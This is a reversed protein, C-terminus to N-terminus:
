SQRSQYQELNEIFRYSKQKKRWQQLLRHGAYKVLDRSWNRYWHRWGGILCDIPFSITKLIVKILSLPNYFKSMLRVPIEQLERLTMNDPKFCPCSGDYKSWPVVELPFIRGEQELRNRLDSGVIPVALLVQITDLSAKRIFRSFLKITEQAGILEEKDKAPYGAIFMGHIWFYRQLIRTWELMKSSSYGKRMAKLQQDVPSEYGICVVRVGARKMLELLETNKATELRIQVTFVLRGGYKQAIKEFFEFTGDLDEELRDDVIFFHRAKRAQVLWNVVNFLHQGTAWRPKGKVSCFECNRSCGRIRGVPYLKIRAFKLLGFDPYPLDNLDPYELPNPPNTICQGDRLFSIGPIDDFSKKERLVELVRQIVMEGDGHVVVDINHKLTEEPCYHAHWGGAVTAVQESHYFEALHWIREMTCTLGCYFGVVEAPDEKQLTLHDPLGLNNCPGRYNNEDIVEVRWGWLKNAVTAVMIPGLATTIRAQRTYINVEPFAPIIFRALPWDSKGTRQAMALGGKM